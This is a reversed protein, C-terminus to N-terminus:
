IATVALLINRMQNFRGAYLEMNELQEMKGYEGLLKCYREYCFLLIAWVEFLSIESEKLLSRAEESYEGSNGDLEWNLHTTYFKRMLLYHNRSGQFLNLYLYFSRRHSELKDEPSEPDGHYYTDYWDKYQEFTMFCDGLEIGLIKVSLFLAWLAGM